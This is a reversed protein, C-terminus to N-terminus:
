VGSAKSFWQRMQEADEPTDVGPMPL